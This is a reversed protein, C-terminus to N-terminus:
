RFTTGPMYWVGQPIRAVFPRVHDEQPPVHGRRWWELGHRRGQHSGDRVGSYPATSKTSLSLLPLPDHSLRPLDCASLWTRVDTPLSALLPSCSLFFPLSDDLM